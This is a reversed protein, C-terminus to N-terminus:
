SEFTRITRTVQGNSEWYTKKGALYPDDPAPQVTGAATVGRSTITHEGPSPRDWDLRWFKWAYEADEGEIIEATRWPGDDIRVQVERLPEGWVAGYIRHLPGVRTVRATVSNIRGKGVSEQRWVTEGNHTEERITVYDRSIFRGMYRTTRVEIRKLWKVQTIGYWGPVILRLPYGHKPPLTQGNVEYCLLIDPDMAQAMTLSRAFNQKMTLPESRRPTIVEEGEDHGFFVVEMGNDWMGARELIPALPTGTWRANYVGGRFVPVGRNGSCELTFDLDRRPMSKIEDLSLNLKQRVAGTVELSYTDGDVTPEPYHSASFFQDVPTIWSELGNWDLLVFDPTRPPGFEDIWNVPTEDRALQDLQALVHSPLLTMGATAIGGKILVDRRSLNSKGAM